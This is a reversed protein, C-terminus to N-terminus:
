IDPPNASTTTVLVPVQERHQWWLLYEFGFYLRTHADDCCNPPKMFANPTDSPLSLPSATMGGPAPPMMAPPVGTGSPACPLPEPTPGPGPPLGQARAATAGLCVVLVAGTWRKSMNTEGM